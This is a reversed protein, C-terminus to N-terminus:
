RPPSRRIFAPLEAPTIRGSGAFSLMAMISSGRYTRRLFNDVWWRKVFRAIFTKSPLRILKGKLAAGTAGPAVGRKVSPKGSCAANPELACPQAPDAAASEARM